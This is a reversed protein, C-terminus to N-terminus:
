VKFINRREVGQPFLKPLPQPILDKGSFIVIGDPGRQWPASHFLVPTIGEKEPCFCMQRYMGQKVVRHVEGRGLCVEGPRGREETQGM